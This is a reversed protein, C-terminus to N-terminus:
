YRLHIILDTGGEGAAFVAKKFPPKTILGRKGNNSVGYGESMFNFKFDANADHYIGVGYNGRGRPLPMCITMTTDTVPVDFRVLKKGSALWEKKESGYLSMRINGEVKKINPITLRVHEYNLGEGCWGLPMEEDILPIVNAVELGSVGSIQTDVAEAFAPQTLSGLLITLVVLVKSSHM